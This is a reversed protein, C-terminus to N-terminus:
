TYLGLAIPNFIHERPLVIFGGLLSKRFVDIDAM